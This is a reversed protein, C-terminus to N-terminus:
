WCIGHYNKDINDVTETMRALDIIIKTELCKDFVQIFEKSKYGFVIVESKNIVDDASNLMLTSIHPIENLIYDKNSGFIKALSVYKDYIFVNYGKGILIEVLKVMPSGRLDDTGEKFSLGFIGVNKKGTKRIMNVAVTIQNENTHILSNILPLQLDLLKSEYLFAKLDKPLCSGGFAFGPKLYEPSINLKTDSCFIDMVEHSDIGIKKSVLGIENAFSIKLAHFINDVYKVMEAVKLSTKIVPANTFKSFVEILRDASKNSNGGVVTKPPNYFDDVSSGERMFEPNFCVGFNTGVKKGSSEELIPVVVNETTGPFVTSRLVILRNGKTYSMADGIEKCVRQIYLLDIRGNEKAPTGVCIFILESSNVAYDTNTTAKLKGSAVSKRIIDDIFPEIIPSKGSNIIDIKEKVVDVGIVSHEEKALCAATTVGVYGMGM